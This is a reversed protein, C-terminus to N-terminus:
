RPPQRFPLPALSLTTSPVTEGALFRQLLARFEASEMKRDDHGSETCEVLVANKLGPLLARANEPPTRADLSGSVLLVPRDSTLRGRFRDPLQELGTAACVEPYIPFNMADSLLHHAEAAEETIRKARAKSAGSACDMLLGMPSDVAAIRNGLAFGLLHDFRGAAMLGIAMPLSARSPASGLAYAVSLQVDYPGLVLTLPEGFRDTTIRAPEKALRELVARLTAVLDQAQGALEPAAAADSALRELFRQSDSPLKHTDDPGEVDMLVARAVQKGHRRLYALGLHSGYSIGFPVIERHQLARRLADVDDASEESQIAALDVGATRWHALCREVVRRQAAVFAARTLPQDLPLEEEFLPGEGFRPESLGTGRQDLAIVDGHALLGYAPDLAMEAVHEIGSAGPGGVLFYIPPGPDKATSPVRVFALVLSPGSPDSHRVPVRLRGIEGQITAGDLLTLTHPELSLLASESGPAVGQLATLAIPLLTLM